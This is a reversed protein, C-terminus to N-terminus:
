GKGYFEESHIHDLTWSSSWKQYIQVLLGIKTLNNKLGTCTLKKLDQFINDEFKSYTYKLLRKYKSWILVVKDGEMVLYQQM